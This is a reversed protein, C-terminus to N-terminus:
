PSQLYPFLWCAHLFDFICGLERVVFDGKKLVGWRLAVMGSRPARRSDSGCSVALRVGSVCCAYDRGIFSLASLFLWGPIFAALCVVSALACVTM